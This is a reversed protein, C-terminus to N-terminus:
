SSPSTPGLHRRLEVVFETLDTLNNELIHTVIALDVDVYAHVVVNRFGAMRILRASLEASLLSARQLTVFLEANSSPEGLRQDSVIHSAVDLAAQIAIQLTYLVFRQEKLDSRILEPPSVGSLQAVCTEIFALKKEVLEVDTV